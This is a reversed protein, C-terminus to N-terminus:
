VKIKDWAKSFAITNYVYWECQKWGDASLGAKLSLESLFTNIDPLMDWVDPLFTARNWGHEIIVGSREKKIYAMFEQETGKFREKPTLVSIEVELDPLEQESVADFRPDGFASNIANDSVDQALDKHAELTGICGRLGGKKTLTVFSAGFYGLDEVDPKKRPQLDCIKNLKMGKWTLKVPPM